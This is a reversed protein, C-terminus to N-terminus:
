VLLQNVALDVVVEGGAGSSVVTRVPVVGDVILYEEEIFEEFLFLGFAQMGPESTTYKYEYDHM